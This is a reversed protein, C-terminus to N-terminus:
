IVIRRLRSFGYFTRCTLRKVGQSQRNHQKCSLTSAEVSQTSHHDHITARSSLRPSSNRCKRSLESSEVPKNQFYCFPKVGERETPRFDIPERPQTDLAPIYPAM